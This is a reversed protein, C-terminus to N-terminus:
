WREYRIKQTALRELKEKINKVKPQSEQRDNSDMEKLYAQTQEEIRKLHREIKKPNYNNKKSNHARAKTGDIAINQGGILDMDKLFLVFLKFTNRLAEHTQKRFDSITHYNPRRGELLWQLEINRCCEREL